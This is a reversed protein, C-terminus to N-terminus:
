LQLIHYIMWSRYNERTVLFWEVKVSGMLLADVRVWIRTNMVFTDLIICSPNWDVGIFKFACTFLFLLQMFQFVLIMCRPKGEQAFSTPPEELSQNRDEAIETLNVQAERQESKSEPVLEYTGHSDDIRYAHVLILPKLPVLYIIIESCLLWKFFSLNLQWTSWKRKRPCDNISYKDPNILKILYTLPKALKYIAIKLLLCPNFWSSTSATEPTLIKICLVNSLHLSVTFNKAM